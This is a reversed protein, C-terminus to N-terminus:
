VGLKNVQDCGSYLTDDTLWGQDKERTAVGASGSCSGLLIDEACVVDLARLEVDGLFDCGSVARGRNSGQLLAAPDGNRNHNLPLLNSNSHVLQGLSASAVDQDSLNLVRPGVILHFPIAIHFAVGLYVIRYHM